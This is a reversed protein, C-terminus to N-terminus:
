KLNFNDRSQQWLHSPDKQLQRSYDGVWLTWKRIYLDNHGSAFKSCQTVRDKICAYIFWKKLGWSIEGRMCIIPEFDNSDM